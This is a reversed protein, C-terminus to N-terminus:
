KNNARNIFDAFILNSVSDKMWEPHFQVGIFYNDVMNKSEIVEIVGDVTTGVVNINNGILDLCCNHLSNTSIYPEGILNRFYSGEKLEVEHVLYDRPTNSFNHQIPNNICSEISQILKGGNAVNIEQHGGCIGLIPIKLKLAEQILRIEGNKYPSSNSKGRNQEGYLRADISNINGSIVIGDLKELLEISDLEDPVLPLIIANGGSEHIKKNISGKHM